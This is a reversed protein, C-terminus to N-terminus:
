GAATVVRDRGARKADYLAADATRTLEGLDVAAGRASSVGISVTVDLGAVPSEVVVERLRTAVATAAAADHGPLLVLFEEGGMRYVLDYTRLEKRLRYALEQLVVDGRDHGFADNVAKFRDVDCMAVAVPLDLALAQARVDAFRAQLAKRNFLGTLPDVVADGRSSLDAAALYYAALSLCSLLALWSVVYLAAPVAPAGPRAALVAAAMLGASLTVGVVTVRPRFCVAQTFVPVVMLALLPSRAGGSLAVSVALNLELLSFSVAGVVEPRASGTGARVGVGMTATAVAVLVVLWWGFWVATLLCTGGIAAGFLYPARFRAHMDTYRGHDAHDGALWRFARSGNAPGDFPTAGAPRPTASPSPAPPTSRPAATRATM